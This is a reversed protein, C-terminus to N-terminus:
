NIRAAGGIVTALIDDSIESIISHYLENAQSLSPLKGLDMM